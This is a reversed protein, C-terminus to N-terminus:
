KVPFRGIARMALIWLFACAALASIRLNSLEEHLLRVGLLFGDSSFGNQSAQMIVSRPILDFLVACVIFAHLFILTVMWRFVIRNRSFYAAVFFVFPVGYFCYNVLSMDSGAFARTM